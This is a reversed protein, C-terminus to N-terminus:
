CARKQLVTQNAHVSGSSMTTTERVNTDSRLPNDRHSSNATPLDPAMDNNERKHSQPVEVRGKSFCRGMSIYSYTVDLEPALSKIASCDNGCFVSLFDRHRVACSWDGCHRMASEHHSGKWPRCANPSCFRSTTRRKGGTIFPRPGSRRQRGCGRSVAAEASCRLQRIPVVSQPPNAVGM